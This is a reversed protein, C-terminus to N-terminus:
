LSKSRDRARSQRAAIHPSLFKAYRPVAMVLALCAPSPFAGGVSRFDVSEPVLLRVQAPRPRLTFPMALLRSAQSFECITVIDAADARADSKPRMTIMTSGLLEVIRAYSLFRGDVGGNRCVSVVVQDRKEFM